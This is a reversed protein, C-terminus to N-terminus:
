NNVALCGACFRVQWGRCLTACVRVCLCRSVFACVIARTMCICLQFFLDATQPIWVPHAITNIFVVLLHNFMGAHLHRSEYHMITVSHAKSFYSRKPPVFHHSIRYCELACQPVSVTSAPGRSFFTYLHGFYCFLVLIVVFFLFLFFVHVIYSTIPLFLWISPTQGHNKYALWGSM